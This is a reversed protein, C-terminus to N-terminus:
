GFGEHRWKDNLREYFPRSIVFTMVACVYIWSQWIGFSMSGISLVITLQAFASAQALPSQFRRIIGQALFYVLMSLLVAGVGGLELWVQLPANHPHNPMLEGRTRPKNQGLMVVEKGGPVYRSADLGWGQFPKELSKRAAFEWVVLRHSISIDPLVTVLTRPQIEKFITTAMFPAGLVGLIFVGVLLRPAIKPLAVTILFVLVGLSVAIAIATGSFSWVLAVTAVLMLAAVWGMGRLWLIMAAPWSMLSLIALGINYEALHSQSVQGGLKIFSVLSGGSYIEYLLISFATGFGALVPFSLRNLQEFAQYNKPQHAVMCFLGLGLALALIEMVKFMSRLPAPSWIVSVGGWVAIGLVSLFIASNAIFFSRVSQRTLCSFGIILMAAALWIVLKAGYLALPTFLAGAFLM